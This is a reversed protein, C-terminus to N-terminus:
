SAAGLTERLRRAVLRHENAQMMWVSVRLGNGEGLSVAIPPDGDLLRDAVERASPRGGGESWRALVHPVRNAIEPVDIRTEVGPLDALAKVIVDARADLEKREADHDVRLYREVAAVLGAIEEKGVKMGRGIGGHPSIAQRGIDILDKRGLLLGSCQPGLLGKGGSFAVLDFGQKVYESLRSAPPVDAAADNFTPVGRQRAVALWEERKIRGDPEAKNLFFMMATRDNIAADLQRRTEVTVIKTGVLLMQAEYGCVHSKQQIIVNKLGSTDPLRQLNASNGGAVCAAAAVTIASAAGATIMAAPVDLLRALHDGAKEQLDTLRVFHRSAEEMAKVVEPPMISGGLMTVTGIGNIVPRVGLRAYIGAPAKPSGSLSAAGGLAATAQMFNRRTSGKRM